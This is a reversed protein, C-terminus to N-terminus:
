FCPASCHSVAACLGCSHCSIDLNCFYLWSPGTLAGLKKLLTFGWMSRKKRNNKKKENWSLFGKASAVLRKVLCFPKNSQQKKLFKVKKDSCSGSSV